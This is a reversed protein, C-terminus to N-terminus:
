RINLRVGASVGLTYFSRDAGYQEAGRDARISIFPSATGGQMFLARLEAGWRYAEDGTWTVLGRQEVTQWRDGYYFSATIDAYRFAAELELGASFRTGTRVGTQVQDGLCQQAMPLISLRYHGGFFVGLEPTYQITTYGDRFGADIGGGLRFRGIRYYGYLSVINSMSDSGDQEIVASWHGFVQFRGDSYYAGLGPTIQRYNEWSSSGSAPNGGAGAASEGSYWSYSCEGFFGFGSLHYAEMRATATGVSNINRAGSYSLYSIYAQPYFSWPALNRGLCRQLELNDPFDDSVKGCELAAADHDGARYLSLGLKLRMSPDDGGEELIKAYGAAANRYNGAGFNAAAAGKMIWLNGPYRVTLTDSLTVAKRYEGQEVLTFLTGTQAEESAPNERLAKAYADLADSYRKEQRATWGEQLYLRHEVEGPFARVAALLIGAAAIYRIM